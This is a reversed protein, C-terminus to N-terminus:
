VNGSHCAHVDDPCNYGPFSLGFLEGEKITINVHDLAKVPGGDEGKEENAKKRRFLHRKPKRTFIRTLDRTEAAHTM